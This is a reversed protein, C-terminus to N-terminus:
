VRPAEKTQSILQRDLYDRVGCEYVEIFRASHRAVPYLEKAKIRRLVTRDDVGLRRSVEGISIRAVKALVHPRKLSDIWVLGDDGIALDPCTGIISRLNATTVSM